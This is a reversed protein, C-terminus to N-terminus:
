GINEYVFGEKELKQKLSQKARYLLNKVQRETKGIAIAAEKNSFDEFFVLWLVARYDAALEQMARYLVVKREERLFVRELDEGDALYDAMEEIPTVALRGNKRLYDVAVNRGISYLFSCFSSRGNFRPKKTILRFFTDEALDEAISYNRVFGNLYLILRVRYEEVIEVIGQDDGDLYRRYSSAGNDM